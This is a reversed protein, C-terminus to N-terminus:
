RLCHLRGQYNHLLPRQLCTPKAAPLNAKLQVCRTKLPIPDLPFVDLSPECVPACCLARAPRPPPLPPGISTSGGLDERM